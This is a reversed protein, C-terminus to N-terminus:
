DCTKEKIPLTPLPMWHTATNAWMFGRPKLEYGKRYNGTYAEYHHTTYWGLYIEKAKTLILVLQTDEKPLGDRVSIWPKIQPITSSADIMDSIEFIASMAGAKFDAELGNTYVPILYNYIQKKLFDGDIAKMEGGSHSLGSDYCIGYNSDPNENIM